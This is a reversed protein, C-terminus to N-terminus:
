AGRKNAVAFYFKGNKRIEEKKLLSKSAKGLVVPAVGLSDAIGALTIGVPHENVAALMKAELGITEEKAAPAEARPPPPIETGGKGAHMKGALGQWAIRAKKLDAKVNGQVERFDSRITKVESSRRATDQALDKRLRTDTKERHSRFGKITGRADALMGNVEPGREAVGKALEQRMRAGGEGRKHELGQLMGTVQSRRSARDRALNKRLQRAERRSDKFTKIMDRAEGRAENAEGRIEGVRKMRDDHSTAINRTLKKKESAIAM